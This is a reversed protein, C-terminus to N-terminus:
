FKFNYTMSPFVSGLTAIRFVNVSRSPVQRFFVSYANRRSYVNYISFIIRHESGKTNKGFPGIAYSVDLRHYDPIRFQNRESFIPINLVNDISFNSVPATIPRGTSYTFNLSLNTMRTVQRSFNINLSHPKDYNSAFWEGDNIANQTPSELVKRFSRSFTYNVEWKTKETAWKLNAEVGYAKGIGDVLERELNKNLLLDAFDRYEIIRDQNRYFVELSSQIANDRFNRFLGLNYNSSTQPKAYFDSLKWIDVPTSSATNSIQNLFQFGRNYGAKVSTNEDFAWRLSVRPEWGQYDALVDGEGFTQIQEITFDNRFSGDRYISIEGPGLRKYNTYRTSLSLSIAENLSWDMQIFPSISAGKEDPLAEPKATSTPGEPNLEGPSVNYINYEAGTIFSIDESFQYFGRLSTRVYRVKNTFRSLDEGQIDFLSSEYEGVNVQATVNLQDNLLQNLYFTGTKTAYDFNVEDSFQFDDGSFFSSIGIKTKESLRADAKLTLDYFFTKSNRVGINKVLNLLYDMYSVRAGVIFSSKNKQIPGELTIRSAAMGIGGRVNMKQRNGERLGVKLVSSLRGGYYAPQNGKFLDVSEILDPHFLSFFGLTHTPNIILADDQLILNEDTNGGRVNFGSAGDGVSTVGSLTQISRLVDTEGFLQSRSELRRVDMREIGMTVAEINQNAAQDTIVVQDLQVSSPYVESSFNINNYLQIHLHLEKYGLYKIQFNYTGYPLRLKFVGREDTVAGGSLGDVQVTAGVITTGDTGDLVEGIINYLQGQNQANRNGSVLTDVLVDQALLGYQLMFFLAIIWSVQNVSHPM